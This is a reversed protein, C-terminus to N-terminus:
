AEEVLRSHHDKKPTRRKGKPEFYLESMYRRGAVKNFQVVVDVVRDLYSRINEEALNGGGQTIMMVIQDFAGAVSDAHLTTISGPHGSNIARLFYFAEEGRLESLMIRDPNLRLCAELLEKPTVQAKGQGGKSCILHLKDRQHLVVEQVDEISIIREELSIEKILANTFTTKGSSTGGSVIINKKHKVAAALFDGIRGSEKLQVLYEDEETMYENDAIRVDEFAGSESYDKLELDLITPKRISVAFMGSAVAPPMVIQIREGDPLSGSLIPCDEGIKQNTYSATLRAMEQLDSASFQDTEVYQKGEPKEIIYQNPRNIMVENVEPDSLIDQIPRLYKRLPVSM